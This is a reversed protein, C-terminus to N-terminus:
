PTVRADNASIITCRHVLWGGDIIIFTPPGCADTDRVECRVPEGGEQVRVTEGCNECEIKM